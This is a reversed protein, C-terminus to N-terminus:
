FRSNRYVTEEYKKEQELEVLRKILCSKCYAFQGHKIVHLEEHADCEDCTIAKWNGNEKLVDKM